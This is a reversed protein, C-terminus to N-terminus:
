GDIETIGLAVRVVLVVSMGEALGEATAETLGLM